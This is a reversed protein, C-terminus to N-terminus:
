RVEKLGDLEDEETLERIRDINEKYHDSNRFGDLNVKIKEKVVPEEDAETKRIDALILGIIYKTKNKQRNLHNIVAVEDDDTRDLRVTVTSYRNKIFREYAESYARGLHETSTFETLDIRDEVNVTKKKSLKETLTKGKSGAMRGPMNKKETSDKKRPM